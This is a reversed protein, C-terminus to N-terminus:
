SRFLRTYQTEHRSSAIAISPTFSGIEDDTISQAADIAQPFHNSLQILALQGSTQGLPVLKVGAMVLGEAWSWLYGQELERPEIGWEHAAICFGLLSNAKHEDSSEINALLSKSEFNLQKLLTYLAKGRQLEEARLEKTERCSYLYDSWYHIAAIDNRAVATYLRKMVPLELTVVSYNLMMTLWDVMSVQDNVWEAEVAWELGQSYTFGGIPLSPSILQFLRFSSVSTPSNHAVHEQLVTNM